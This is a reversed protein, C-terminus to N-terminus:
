ILLIVLLMNKIVTVKCNSLIIIIFPSPGLDLIQFHYKSCTGAIEESGWRSEEAQDGSQESRRGCHDPCTFRWQPAGM